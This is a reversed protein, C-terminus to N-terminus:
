SAAAKPNDRFWHVAEILAVGRADRTGVNIAKRIWQPLRRWCTVCAVGACPKYGCGVCRRGEAPATV